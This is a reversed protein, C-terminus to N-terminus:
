VNVEEAMALASKIYKETSELNYSQFVVGGGYTKTHFKRGGLKNARKCAVQYDNKYFASKEAGTLLNRYHTVYRPNGNYDNDIRTWTFELNSM